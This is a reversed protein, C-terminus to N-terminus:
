PHDSYTVSVPASVGGKGSLFSRQTGKEVEYWGPRATIDSPISFPRMEQFDGLWVLTVYKSRLERELHGTDIAVADKLKDILNMIKKPTMNKYSEVKQVPASGVIAGGRAKILLKDKQRIRRYPYADDKGFHVCVRKGGLVADLSGTGLVAVHEKM